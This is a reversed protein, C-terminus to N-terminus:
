NSAQGRARVVFGMARFESDKRIASAVKPDGDRNSVEVLKDTESACALAVARAITDADASTTVDAAANKALCADRAKYANNIRTELRGDSSTHYAGACGSLLLALFVAATRM